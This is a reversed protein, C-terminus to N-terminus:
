AVTIPIGTPIVPAEKVNINVILVPIFLDNNCNM